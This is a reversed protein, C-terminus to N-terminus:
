FAALVDVWENMCTIVDDTIGNDILVKMFCESCLKIPSLHMADHIVIELTAFVHFIHQQMIM